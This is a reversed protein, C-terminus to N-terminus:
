CTHLDRSTPPVQSCHRVDNGLLETARDHLECAAGTIDSPRGKDLVEQAYTHFSEMYGLALEYTELVNEAQKDSETTMLELQKLIDSMQEYVTHNIQDSTALVLKGINQVKSAFNTMNYIYQGIFSACAIFVHL